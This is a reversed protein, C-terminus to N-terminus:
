DEDADRLEAESFLDIAREEEFAIDIGEQVADSIDIAAIDDFRPDNLAEGFADDRIRDSFTERNDDSRIDAAMAADFGIDRAAYFEETSMERDTM